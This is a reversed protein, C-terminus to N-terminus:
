GPPTPSWGARGRSCGPSGPLRRASCASSPPLARALRCAVGQQRRGAARARRGALCLAGPLRPQIRQPYVIGKLRTIRLSFDLPLAPDLGAPGIVRFVKADARQLSPPLRLPDDLDLDRLELPLEGQHLRLREPVAGRVFTEGVFSHAGDAIVLLAHDGDDLRGLLHLWGAEGLLNRGVVPANLYAVYVETSTDGPTDGAAAEVGSGAFAM